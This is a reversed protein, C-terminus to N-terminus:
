SKVWADINIKTSQYGALSARLECVTSGDVDSINKAGASPVGISSVVVSPRLEYRGQRDTLTEIRSGGDGCAREIAVRKPPASGDEMTVLGKVVLAGAEARDKPLLVVALLALLLLVRKM